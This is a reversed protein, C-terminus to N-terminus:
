SYSYATVSSEQSQLDNADFGNTNGYLKCQISHISTYIKITGSIQCNQTLLNWRGNKPNYMPAQLNTITKTSPCSLVEGNNLALLIIAQM